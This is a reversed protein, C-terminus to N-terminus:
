ALLEDHKGKTKRRYFWVLLFMLLTLTVSTAAGQPWNRLLLFQDQILNGLLLSKASGLLIPIYFLTMAPLMVLLVGAIVGPVSLPFIIRAFTQLRNAGLDQAAELLRLDLKELNAYLPLIMFPLLNYVCGFLVAGTTYIMALPAHIFGVKLLITNIIGKTKILALLAYTRILSSTWFPIILFVLLLNKVKASSQAVFYAMPYGIILCLATCIVALWLSRWFIKLYIINFLSLYSHINFHWVLLQDDSYSLFSAIIMLSLPILTFLLLWLVVSTLSFYKFKNRRSKTM